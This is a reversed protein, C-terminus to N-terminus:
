EELPSVQKGKLLDSFSSSSPHIHRHYFLDSGTQVSVTVRSFRLWRVAKMSPPATYPDSMSVAVLRRVRLLPPTSFCKM